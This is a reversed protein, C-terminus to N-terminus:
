ALKFLIGVLLGSQALALGVVWKILDTKLEALKYDLHEKTVLDKLNIELVEALATAEAKAQAEPVGAAILKESFKLTDFTVTTM